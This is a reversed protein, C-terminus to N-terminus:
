FLRLFFSSHPHSLLSLCPSINLLYFFLFFTIIGFWLNVSTSAYFLPNLGVCLFGKNPTSLYNYKGKTTHHVWISGGIHLLYDLIFCGKIFKKLLLTVKTQFCYYSLEFKVIFFDIIPFKTVIFIFLINLFTWFSSTNWKKYIFKLILGPPWPSGHRLTYSSCQVSICSSGNQIDSKTTLFTQILVNICNKSKYQNWVCLVWIKEGGCYQM